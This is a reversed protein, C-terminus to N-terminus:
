GFVAVAAMTGALCLAAVRPRREATLYTAVLLAIGLAVPVGHIAGWVTFLMSLATIGEQTSGDPLKRRRQGDMWIFWSEDIM